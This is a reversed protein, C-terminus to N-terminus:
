INYIKCKVQKAKCQEAETHTKGCAICKNYTKNNLNPTKNGQFGQRKKKAEANAGFRQHIQIKEGNNENSTSVCLSLAYALKHAAKRLTHYTTGSFIMILTCWM